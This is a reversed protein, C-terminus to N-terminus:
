GPRARPHTSRGHQSGLVVLRRAPALGHSADSASLIATLRDRRAMRRQVNAGLRIRVVRSAGPRVDFRAARDPRGSSGVPSLAMAGVCRGAHVDPCTVRASLVGRRSVSVQSIAPGPALVAISNTYSSTVYVNRQDPSLAVGSPYGLGNAIQCISKNDDDLNGESVLCGAVSLAGTTPNRSLTTLGSETAVYLTSGDKKVAVGVPESLPRGHGCGDKDGEDYVESECGIWRLAGSEPSRAFVSIASSSYAVAYLTKGDPSLALSVVGELGKGAVCSGSKPAEQMVCGRQTLLGTDADRNFTLVSNSVAAGVYVQKGDASVVVADAGRLANGTTCLGDHGDDSICGLSTLMGTKSNRSFMVVANSAPTAAVVYANAGDPTLAIAYAGALPFANVCTRVARVCGVQKLAGGASKSFIAVGGADYSTAYVFQGDPSGAVSSAGALADGDACAGKTGDIGSTGNGSVCNQEAIAGTTPDRRFAAVANSSGASVYTGLGDPSVAVGSAGLLGIGRSCGKTPEEDHPDIQSTCGNAGALQGLGSRGANTSSSGAATAGIVVALAALAAVAGADRLPLGHM